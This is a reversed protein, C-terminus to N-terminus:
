GGGGREPFARGSEEGDAPRHPADLWVSVDPNLSRVPPPHHDSVQRLVGFLTPGRFPPEGTCLAYLVSGLSFLDARHDVLEGLAQEPAMYEPTGAVMGKRTLGVDDALRALGFDTIKVTFGNLRSASDESRLAPADGSPVSRRSSEADRSFSLLLNAPKVDRHVVGRAHAAALGAATQAGIQVIEELELAGERDLLHQLSEGTIRQMVLYPLGEAESVGHIAVIHEHDVAAAARGERLFRRRATTNAALSPAMVKIAVVRNLAPDRAEFVIGMGGRGIEALVEYPGFIGLLGPRDTPRLFLLEDEDAVAFEENTLHEMVRRLAPEQRVSEVLGPATNEWASRDAALTELTQQCRACDELHRFLENLEAEPGSEDLLVELNGVSPCVPRNSIM